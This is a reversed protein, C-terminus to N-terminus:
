TQAEERNWPGPLLRLQSSRAHIAVRHVLAAAEDRTPPPGTLSSLARLFDGLPVGCLFPEGRPADAQARCEERVEYLTPLRRNDFGPASILSLVAAVFSGAPLTKTAQRYLERTADPLETEPMAAQLVSWGREFEAADIM